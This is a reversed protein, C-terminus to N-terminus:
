KDTGKSDDPTLKKAMRILRVAKGYRAQLGPMLIESNGAVVIVPQHDALTQKAIRRVQDLRVREIKERFGLIDAPRERSIVAGLLKEQVAKNTSFMSSFDATLQRKAFVLMDDTLGDGGVWRTLANIYGLTTDALEPKTSGSFVLYGQRSYKGLMSSMRVSQALISRQSGGLIQNLLVLPYFDESMRGAAHYGIRLVATKLSPEEFITVHPQDGASKEEAFDTEQISGREWESFRDALLRRVTQFDINGTIIVTANNPRFFTRYHSLVDEATIADLDPPEAMLSRTMPHGAGFLGTLVELTALEPAGQDFESAARRIMNTEAGFGAGPFRANMCLDSLIDITQRTNRSLMRAYLQSYEYNTAATITSGLTGLEDIIQQRDRKETGRFLARTTIQSLGLRDKPDRSIGADFVVSIEVLPAENVGAYVIRVGNPLSDSIIAPGAFPHMVGTKPVPLDDQTKPEEQEKRIQEKPAPSKQGHAPPSALVTAMFVVGAILQLSRIRLFPLKLIATM